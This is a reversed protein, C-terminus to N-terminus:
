LSRAMTGTRVYRAHWSLAEDLLYPTQRGFARYVAGIGAVGAGGRPSGVVFASIFSTGLCSHVTDRSM